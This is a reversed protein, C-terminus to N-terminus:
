HRAHSAAGAPLRHGGTVGPRQHGCVVAGPVICVKGAWGALERLGPNQWGADSILAQGAVGGRARLASCLHEGELWVQGVRRYAGGDHALRRVRVLLPNDRSTLHVAESM